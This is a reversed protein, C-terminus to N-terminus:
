NSSGVLAELQRETEEWQEEVKTEWQWKWLEQAAEGLERLRSKTTEFEEEESAASVPRGDYLGPSNFEYMLGIKAANKVVSRAFPLRIDEYIKLAGAVRVLTTRPDALLRGLIYADEIAQGGGAGFHTEMAHVADGILAVRGSAAFPLDDVIHIAWLTPKEVCSLMQDVEPEWGAFNAVVDDRSADMLWKHPYTTGIGGPVTVFGIWNLYKGDSIPYTIIHRGKGAYSMPSKIKLASHEPNVERMREGPILYRYAVTGTWLPTAHKCRACDERPVAKSDACEREHASDYMAARTKSKIGDAGIIVDAEATTGDAFHLTYASRGSEKEDSTSETYSVIRKSTHVTCSKPLHRVLVDVMDARHMVTSGNPVMIRWFEYGERKWDSKRMVFAPRFEEEGAAKRNGDTHRVAKNLLEEYIGLARMVTWTRPWVSIGAGVTTIEQGAEYMDIQIPSAHDELRGLTVALTLGAIGGGVIALRFRPSPSDANGDM